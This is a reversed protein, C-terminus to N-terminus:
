EAVLSEYAASEVTGSALAHGFVLIMEALFFGWWGTALTYALTGLTFLGGGIALIIRRSFRDSLYGSPVEFLTMGVAYCAQLLLVDAMSMGHATYYLVLFPMYLAIAFFCANYAALLTINRSSPPSRM